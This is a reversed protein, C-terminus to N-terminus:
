AAVVEWRNSSNRRKPWYPKVTALEALAAGDPRRQVGADQTCDLKLQKEAQLWRAERREHPQGEKERILYACVAIQEPTPEIDTQSNM